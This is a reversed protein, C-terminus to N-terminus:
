HPSRDGSNVLKEYQGVGAPLAPRLVVRDRGDKRGHSLASWAIRMVKVYVSFPASSKSKFADVVARPMAGAMVACCVAFRGAYSCHRCTYRLLSGYWAPARDVTKMRGVSHGGAHAAKALPTFRIRWGADSIRKLFDVDEFWVPHFGEDFGGASRWANRRIMLFAGAPQEADRPSSTDSDLCRFRRNVPNSPWLRNLGLTEFALAAATPFRRIEFGTQPQGSVDLLRGGCAGTKPDEFEAALGDLNTQVIADPNLVLVLECEPLMEFGQNVAAAFGRNESNWVFKAWTRLRAEAATQDTSANDVVVVPMEPERLRLADLCEGIHGGSNYTVVVAGRRM